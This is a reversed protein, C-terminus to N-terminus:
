KNKFLTELADIGAYGLPILAVAEVTGLLLGGTLGVLGSLVVSVAFLEEDVDFSSGGDRRGKYVGGVARVLGGLAGYGIMLVITNM